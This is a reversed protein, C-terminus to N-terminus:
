DHYRGLVAYLITLMLVFGMSFLATSWLVPELNEVAWWVCEMGAQDSDPADLEVVSALAGLSVIMIFARTYFARAPSIYSNVSLLNRMPKRIILFWTTILAGLLIIMTIWAPIANM